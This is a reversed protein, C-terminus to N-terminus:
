TIRASEQGIRSEAPDIVIIFDRDFGEIMAEDEQRRTACLVASRSFLEQFTEM